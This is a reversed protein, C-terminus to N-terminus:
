GCVVVAGPLVTVTLSRQEGAYDGDFELPVARDALIRVSRGRLVSAQTGGGPDRRVIRWILVAVDRKSRPALVIVDLLGDSPDADPLLAVGGQVQGVNGVLVGLGSRRVAPANDVRVEYHVPRTRRLAKAGGALYAPWGYRDKARDDTNRIMAADLGLGAMVLFRAGGSELVDITRRAPGFAVDIAAPLKMPLDLNRALLNGTGVPLLAMPTGTGVLAGACAAVTGDGGCVLVLEAGQELAQRTQAAGTESETTELWILEPGARHRKLEARLREPDTVAVPNCIAAARV